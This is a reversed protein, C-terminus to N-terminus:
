SQRTSKSQSLNTNTHSRDCIGSHFTWPTCVERLDLLVEQLAQSSIDEGSAALLLDPQDLVLVTKSGPNLARAEAIGKEVQERFAPLTPDSLIRQQGAGVEGPGHATPPHVFLGSLGDVFVFRAKQSLGDLDLGLRAAGERWFTFDRMFSVLVVSVANAASEGPGESTGSARHRRGPLPSSSSSSSLYSYLFRLVLWNTSAGLIGTLLVLSTDEPPLRLAPELPPPINRAAM